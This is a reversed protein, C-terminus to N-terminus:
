DYQGIRYHGRSKLTVLVDTVRGRLIAKPRIAPPRAHLQRRSIGEKHRKEARAESAAVTQFGEDKTTM